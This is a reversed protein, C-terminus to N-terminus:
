KEDKGLNCEFKNDTLFDLDLFWYLLFFYQM